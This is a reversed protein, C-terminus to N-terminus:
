VTNKHFIFASSELICFQWDLLSWRMSDCNHMVEGWSLLKACILRIYVCADLIVYVTNHSTQLYMSQIDSNKWKTAVYHVGTHRRKKIKPYKNVFSLASRWTSWLIYLNIQTATLKQPTGGKSKQMPCIYTNWHLKYHMKCARLHVLDNYKWLNTKKFLSNQIQLSQTSYKTSAHYHM